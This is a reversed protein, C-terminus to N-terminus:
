ILASLYSSNAGMTKERTNQILTVLKMGEVQRLLVSRCITRLVAAEDVVRTGSLINIGHAFLVPSLPTSPGVVMVTSDLMKM